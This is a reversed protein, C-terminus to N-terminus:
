KKGSVVEAYSPKNIEGTKKDNKHSQTKDSMKKSVQNGLTKCNDEELSRSLVDMEVSPDSKRM